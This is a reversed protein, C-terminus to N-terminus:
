TRYGTRWLAVRSDALYSSRVLPINAAAIIALPIDVSTDTLGYKIATRVAPSVEKTLSKGNELTTIANLMLVSSAMHRYHQKNLAVYDRLRLLFARSEAPEDNVRAYSSGSEFSGATSTTMATDLLPGALAWYYKANMKIPYAPTGAAVAKAAADIAEWLTKAHCSSRYGDYKAGPLKSLVTNCSPKGPAQIAAEAAPAGMVLSSTSIALVTLATVAVNRFNALEYGLM